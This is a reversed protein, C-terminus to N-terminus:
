RRYTPHRETQNRAPDSLLRQQYGPPHTRERHPPVERLPQLTAQHEITPWAQLLRALVTIAALALVLASMTKALKRRRTQWARARRKEEAREARVQKRGM